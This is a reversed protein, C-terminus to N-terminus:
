QLGSINGSMNLHGNRDVGIRSDLNNLQDIQGFLRDPSMLGPNLRANNVRNM